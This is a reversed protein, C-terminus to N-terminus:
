FVRGLDLSMRKDEFDDLSLSVVISFFRTNLEEYLVSKLAMLFIKWLYKGMRFRSGLSLDIKLAPHLTTGLFPILKALISEGLSMQLWLFLLVHNNLSTKKEM